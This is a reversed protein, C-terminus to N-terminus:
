WLRNKEILNRKLGKCFHAGWFEKAAFRAALVQSPTKSQRAYELEGQTFVRELFRSSVKEFRNVEVLDVGLGLIAL